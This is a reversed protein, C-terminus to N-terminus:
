AIWSHPNYSPLQEKFGEAKRCLLWHDALSNCLGISGKFRTPIDSNFRHFYVEFQGPGIQYMEVRCKNGLDDWLTKDAIANM